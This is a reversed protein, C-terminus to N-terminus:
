IRSLLWMSIIQSVSISFLFYIRRSKGTRTGLDMGSEEAAANDPLIVYKLSRLLFFANALYVYLFMVYYVYSPMRLLQILLIVIVGVFKYGSYSVLDLIQSESTINLLYCGLKIILFEVLVIALATTSLSGLLEPRFQGQIGALIASLLIYTVMGMVPIYMDPSNIDYRPPRYGELQGTAESRQFQRSWPKHRWPFLVLFLKRVVYGNTVNFYHRLASM